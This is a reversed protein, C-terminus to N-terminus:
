RLASFSSAFHLQGNPQAPCLDQGEVLLLEALVSAQCTNAILIRELARKGTRRIKEMVLFWVESRQCGDVRMPDCLVMGEAIAVLTRGKDACGDEV